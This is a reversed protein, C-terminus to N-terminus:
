HRACGRSGERFAFTIGMEAAEERLIAGTMAVALVM